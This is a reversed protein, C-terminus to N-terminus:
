PPEESAGGFNAPPDEPGELNAAGGSVVNLVLDLALDISGVAPLCIATVLGIASGSLEPGTKSQRGSEFTDSGAV